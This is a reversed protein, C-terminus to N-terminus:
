ALTGCQVSYQLDSLTGGPIKRRYLTEKVYCVGASTARRLGEWVEARVRAGDGEVGGERWRREQSFVNGQM